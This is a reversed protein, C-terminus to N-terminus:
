QEISMLGLVQRTMRVRDARAQASAIEGTDEFSLTSAYDVIADFLGPSVAIDTDDQIGLAKKIYYFTGTGSNLISGSQYAYLTNGFITYAAATIHPLTDTDLEEKRGHFVFVSTSGSKTLSIPVLMEVINNADDELAVGASSFSIAQSSVMGQFIDRVRDPGAMAYCDLILNNVARNIYDERDEVTFQKGDAPASEVPDEVARSFRLHLEDLNPTAM